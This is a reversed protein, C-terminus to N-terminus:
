KKKRWLVDPNYFVSIQPLCLKEKPTLSYLDQNTCVRRYYKKLRFSANVFLHSSCFYAMFTFSFLSLAKFRNLLSPNGLYSAPALYSQLNMHSLPFLLLCEQSISEAEKKRKGKQKRRGGKRSSCAFPKLFSPKKKKKLQYFILGQPSATCLQPELVPLHIKM